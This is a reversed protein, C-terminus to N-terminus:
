IGLADSHINLEEGGTINVGDLHHKIIFTMLYVQAKEAFYFDRGRCITHRLDLLTLRCCVNMHGQNYQM